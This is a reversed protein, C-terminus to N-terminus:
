STMSNRLKRHGNVRSSVHVQGPLRASTILM